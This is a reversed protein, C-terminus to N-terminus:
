RRSTPTLLLSFIEIQHVSPTFSFPWSTPSFTSQLLPVGALCAGLLPLTAACTSSQINHLSKTAVYSVKADLFQRRSIVAGRSLM